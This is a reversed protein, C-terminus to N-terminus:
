HAEEWNDAVDIGVDLPVELDVIHAMIDRVLPIVQELEDEPVEFVLEDHVQLLMKTKLGKELFAEEIRPMVMKIIDANAGQLPANIAARESGARMMAQKANINPFHVRRGFMTEIYGKDHAQEKFGELYRRVGAYREFYSNIYSEAEDHEIGLHKALSYKGMGYVLGFNIAKAASRQAPQVEELPVHFIQHATYAHVDHKAKFAHLLGESKSLHALLRLEIQSYDACLIKCGPQAIFQRRIKRGDESRSPINQLNPDSSSFRGTAAGIQNYSTHVRGTKPNIQARLGEIYTGQLKALGRYELIKECIPADESLKELVDAKTSRKKNEKLGLEDFLVEAMQKPSNINFPHGALAYIDTELANLREVFLTELQSLGTKSVCVGASEMRYLVPILPREIEEYLTKVSKNEPLDIQEKLVQYLRLTVDADEAAYHTAVDLPVYDFTIQKKGSGAVESFSVCTHDLHRKALTDMNHKTLGAELCGSLIMTDEIGQLELGYRALIHMDYKINQGIKLLSRNELLPKLYHKVTKLSLQEPLGSLMDGKHTLPIYAGKYPEVSFSIGVLEATQVDLGTTETDIAFFSAKEIKKVWSALQEEKTITEYHVDMTEKKADSGDTYLDEPTKSLNFVKEARETLKNFGMEKLFAVAEKPTPSFILEKESTHLTVDRKLTVLEKSLYAKDKDNILNELLKPKKIDELNNYVDDLSGYTQILQAATKPGVGKVGPINDSSDGILSQIDIVKEPPVGFKEEAGEISVTKNKMTDCLFIDTDMLQLLDKDSSFISIKHTKKYNQVLTAIVDDAEFGDEKVTAIGFADIMPKLYPLQEIMEPDVEKRNAKYESYMKHRFTKPTDLAVCCLDPKLDTIVKLLMQTFGYLANTHLGDVARTLPRVAYYARFIFNFGDVVVLHKKDM